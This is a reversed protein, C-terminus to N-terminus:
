MVWGCATDHVGRLLTEQRSAHRPRHRARHHRGELTEPGNEHRHTTAALHKVCLLLLCKPAAACICSSYKCSLLSHLM